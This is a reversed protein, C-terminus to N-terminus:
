GEYEDTRGFRWIEGEDRYVPDKNEVYSKLLERIRSVKDFEGDSEMFADLGSLQHKFILRGFYFKTDAM